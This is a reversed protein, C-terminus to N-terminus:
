RVGPPQQLAARHQRGFLGLFYAIGLVSIQLGDDQDLDALVPFGDLNIGLHQRRM